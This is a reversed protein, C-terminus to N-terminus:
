ERVGCEALACSLRFNYTVRPKGGLRAQLQAFAGGFGTFEDVPTEMALFELRAEIDTWDRKLIRSSM